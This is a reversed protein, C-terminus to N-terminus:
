RDKQYVVLVSLIQASRPFSFVIGPLFVGLYESLFADLLVDQSQTPKLKPLPHLGLGCASHSNSPHSNGCRCSGGCCSVCHLDGLCFWSMWALNM